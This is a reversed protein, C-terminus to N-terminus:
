WRGRFFVLVNHQDGVLDNQSFSTGDTRRAEFAPLPRGLTIPGTYAPLRLANLIAFEAGALLLVALLAIARWVTRRKWLSVAVLAGGLLAMAPVYWPFALRQLSLQLAYAGVGLAGITLGSVLLLRGSSGGQTAVQSATMIKDSPISSRRTEAPGLMVTLDAVVDAGAL